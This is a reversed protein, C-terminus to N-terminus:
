EHFNGFNRRFQRNAARQNEAMRRRADVTSFMRRASLDGGVAVSRGEGAQFWVRRNNNLGDIKRVGKEKAIVRLKKVNISLDDRVEVETEYTDLSPLVQFRVVYLNLQRISSLEHMDIVEQLKMIDGESEARHLPSNKEIISHIAAKAIERGLGPHSEVRKLTLCHCLDEPISADSCERDPKMPLLLSQGPIKPAPTEDLLHLITAYIDFPTALKNKNSALNRALGPANQELSSPLIILAVPSTREVQFRYDHLNLKNTGVDSVLILITNTLLPSLNRFFSLFLEDSNKPLAASAHTITGSWFFGFSPQSEFEKVFFGINQLMRKVRWEPGACMTRGDISKHGVQRRLIEGFRRMDYDVNPKLRHNLISAENIDEGFATVYGHDNFNNWIPQCDEDSCKEFQQQNRGTLLGVLNNYRDSDLFNLFINVPSATHM